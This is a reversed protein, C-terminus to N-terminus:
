LAKILFRCPDAVDHRTGTEDLYHWRDLYRCGSDVYGLRLYLAAARTNSDGVGMGIRSRGRQQAHDEAAAILATGIGRSQRHEPWVQLGNIEPCDGVLEQVEPARCGGWRIECSGVPTGELWAILFTSTGQEQRSFRAAHTQTLGTPTWQELLAIDNTRCQRIEVGACYAVSCQSPPPSQRLHSVM